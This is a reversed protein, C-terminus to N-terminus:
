VLQLELHDPTALGGGDRRLAAIVTTQRGDPLTVRSKAPADTALPCYATSTSTTEDGNSARVLRTQEDLFCRVAVASGYRPGYASNGLYPEITIRHRMLWGPLRSM